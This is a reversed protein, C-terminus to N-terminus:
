GSGRPPPRGRRRPRRRWPWGPPRAILAAVIAAMGLACECAKWRSRRPAPRACGRRSRTRACASSAGRGPGRDRTSAARPWGPRRRSAPRPSRPRRRTGSRGGRGRRCARRRAWRAPARRRGPPSRPRGALDDEDGGGVVAAPVRAEVVGVDLAEQRADVRQALPGVPAVADRDGHGRVRHARDRGVPQLRDGAVGRSWPRGRWTWAESCGRSTRSQRAWCPALGISSSARVPKRPGRVLTTCAIWTSSRSM